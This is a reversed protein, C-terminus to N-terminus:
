LEEPAKVLTHLIHDYGAEDTAAVGTLDAREIAVYYNILAGWRAPPVTAIKDGGCARAAAKALPNGHANGKAFQASVATKAHEQVIDFAAKHDIKVQQADQPATLSALNPFRFLLQEGPTQGGAQTPTPAPAVPAPAVPAPAAPAVPAPASQAQAAAEDAAIQEKTRRTRKTTPAAGDNVQAPAAETEETPPEYKAWSLHDLRNALTWLQESNYPPQGAEALLAQIASDVHQQFSM